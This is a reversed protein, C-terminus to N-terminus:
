LEVSKYRDGNLVELMFELPTGGQVAFRFTQQSLGSVLTVGGDFALAPVQQHRADVNWFVVHPLTYGEADFLAKANEFLTAGPARVAEDFEMDSVVYLTQPLEEPAANAAVAAALIAEFAAELDTNMGWEAAEIADLKETLTDGEIQVLQPRASFTLFCGQFPGTCREAFYLALSVSVSMPRGWMSGSVDALVIANQGNTYDPLQSWLASAAEPDVKALDFLEYTFLTGTNVTETGAQVADLFEGYREGDHRRFARTHKRHAQSPLSGYDVGDWGGTTMTHELLGIRKRLAVVTRRYQAASLGLAGALERALVRTRESSTNESPMWKALLSVEGGAALAAQDAALQARVVAVVADDVGDAFLDDFRGFEGVYRLARAYVAGDLVRLARLCARFVSREGQGGRIDRLYFLARVALLADQRYAASFLRVADLESGRMAGAQAFFDLVADLSGAHTVANNETRTHHDSRQSAGPFDM